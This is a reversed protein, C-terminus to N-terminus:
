GRRALRRVQAVRRQWGWRTVRTMAEVVIGRSMKSEGRTREVFRIPVEVVDHGADLARRVMDIQFCYGQSEVGSAIIKALVESRYARYGGTVDRIGIGLALRAYLSGGQSLVRRHLPWNVVSAARCGDPASSSTPQTSRM